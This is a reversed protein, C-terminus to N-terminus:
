LPHVTVEWLNEDLRTARLNFSAFRETAFRELSPIEGQAEEDDIWLGRGEADVVVEVEDGPVEEPVEVIAVRRISVRWTDGGERAAFAHYPAPVTVADAIQDPAGTPLEEEMFLTGDALAVFEVVDGPLDQAEVRLIEDYELDMSDADEEALAIEDDGVGDIDLGAEEALQEHIPKERRFFGM